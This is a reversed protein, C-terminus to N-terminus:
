SASSGGEGTREPTTVGILRNWLQYDVERKPVYLHDEGATMDASAHFERRSPDRLDLYAAKAELRSGAPLIPITKLVDDHFDHLIRHAEKVDYATRPNNKEPHPGTLDFNQGAAADPNMDRQYSGPHKGEPGQTQPDHLKDAM